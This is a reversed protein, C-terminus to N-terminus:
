EDHDQDKFDLMSINWQAVCKSCHYDEVRTDYYMTRKVRPTGGGATTETTPSYNCIACRVTSVSIPYSSGM